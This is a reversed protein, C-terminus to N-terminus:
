IRNIINIIKKRAKHGELTPYFPYVHLQGKKIEYDFDRNLNKLKKIMDLIDLYFTESTGTFISIHSTVKTLDGYKPSAYPNKLNEEDVAWLKGAVHLGDLGFFLEKKDALEIDPHSNTLDLWPSLLILNDAQRLNHDILYYTFGLSLGGGSSDGMITIKTNNGIENLIRNYLLSVKSIADKFNYEPFRPYIPMIVRSNTKKAIESVSKFQSKFPPFVYGGGHFYLLINQNLDDNKNWDMVQMNDIYFENYNKLSSALPNKVTKRNENKLMEISEDLNKVLNTTKQKLNANAIIRNVLYSSISLQTKKRFYIYAGILLFVISTTILILM